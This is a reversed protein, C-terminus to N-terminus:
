KTSVNHVRQEVVITARWGNDCPGCWHRIEPLSLQDSIMTRVLVEHCTADRASPESHIGNDELVGWQRQIKLTFSDPTQPASPFYNDHQYIRYSLSLDFKVPGWCRGAFLRCRELRYRESRCSWRFSVGLKSSFQRAGEVEAQLNWTSSSKHAAKM